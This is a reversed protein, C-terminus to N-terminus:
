RSAGIDQLRDSRLAPQLTPAAPCDAASNSPQIIEARFRLVPVGLARKGGEEPFPKSRLRLVRQEYPALAIVPNLRNPGGQLQGEWLQQSGASINVTHDAMMGQLEIDFRIQVPVALPNAVLVTSDPRTWQWRRDEAQEVAYWGDQPLLLPVPELPPVAYVLPNGDVILKAEPMLMALRSRVDDLDGPLDPHDHVILAQACAAGLASRLQTADDGGVLTPQTKDTLGKLAPLAPFPDPPVRSVYGGAIPRGHWLQSLQYHIERPLFPLEVVAGEPLRQLASLWAPPAATIVPWPLPPLCDFAVLLLGVALITRPARRHLALAVGLSLVVLSLVLFHNPRQSARGVNLLNLLSHPLPV